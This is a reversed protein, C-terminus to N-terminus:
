HGRSLSAAASTPTRGSRSAFERSSTAGLEGPEARAGVVGQSAQYRYLFGALPTSPREHTWAAALRRSQLLNRPFSQSRRLNGRGAGSSWVRPALGPGLACLSVEFGAFGLQAVKRALGFDSLPQKAGALPAARGTPAPEM